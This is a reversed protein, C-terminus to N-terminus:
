GFAVVVIKMRLTTGMVLVAIPLVAVVPVTKFFEVVVTGSRELWINTALLTGVILGIGAGIALGVAWGEITHWVAGWFVSESLGHWFESSVAGLTPITSNGLKGDLSLGLWLLVIAALGTVRLALNGLRLRLGGRSRSVRRQPREAVTSAISM